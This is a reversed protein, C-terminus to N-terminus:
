RCAGWREGRGLARWAVVGNGEEHACLKAQSARELCRKRWMFSARKLKAMSRRMSSRFLCKHAAPMM